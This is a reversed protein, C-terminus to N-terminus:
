SKIAEIIWLIPSTIVYMLALCVVIAFVCVFVMIVIIRFWELLDVFSLWLAKLVNKIFKM